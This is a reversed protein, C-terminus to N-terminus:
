DVERVLMRRHVPQSQTAVVRVYLVQGVRTPDYAASRVTVRDGPRIIGTREVPLRMEQDRQTIASDALELANDWQVPRLFRAPGGWIPLWVGFGETTVKGTEPDTVYGTPGDERHEVLVEDVMLSESHARLDPLAQAIDDGIM